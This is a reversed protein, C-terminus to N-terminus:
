WRVEGIVQYVPLFVALLLFALLGGLVLALLPELLKLARAVSERADRAFFWAANDLAAPLAGTLEGSSLLRVILPPFLGSQAFGASVSHGAAIRARTEGIWRALQRNGVSQECTALADLLNLGSQVLMALLGAFRALAAKRMAEGVVPLRLLLADARVGGVRQRLWLWSLMAALVLGVLLTLAHTQLGTSLAVLARTIWPVPLQLQDILAALRPALHFLLVGAAALVAVFVATPYILLRKIENEIEEQAKLRRELEAFVAELRDSAEAARISAVFVPDFVQPHLALADSLLRGGEIDDALLTLVQRFPGRPTVAVLDRLGEPLPVGARAVQQMHFCFAILERRPTRRWPPGQPRATPRLRILHLGMQRLRLEADLENAAHLEGRNVHGALDAAKYRYHPM